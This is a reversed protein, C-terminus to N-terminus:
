KSGEVAGVAATANTTIGGGIKVLRGLRISFLILMTMAALFNLVRLASLIGSHKTFTTTAM